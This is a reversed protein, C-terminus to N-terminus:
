RVGIWKHTQLGLRWRPHRLCYDVCERTNAEARADDCPQLIFRRFHLGTFDEPTCGEQPWVLKLEDGSTTALPNGAKPSVTIWDLGPPLPLTGNSEVGVEFGRAHLLDILDKTLQLAPEGGTFVVYPKEGGYAAPDLDPFAAAIAEAVDEPREFVGADAGVFDTDCFRCRATARDEPRGSWLNCGSFRCFVAPRGTQAGEGQLTYFLEKIRYAM